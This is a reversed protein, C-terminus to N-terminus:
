SLVRVTFNAVHHWADAEAGDQLLQYGTRRVRAVNGSDLPLRHRHLARMVATGIRDAHDEATEIMGGGSDYRPKAFSHLAVAVEDGDVCSAQIPIGSPAGYRVFPWPPPVVTPQVSAAPVIATVAADAKLAKLIARRIPTAGETPM